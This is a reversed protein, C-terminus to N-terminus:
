NMLQSVADSKVTVGLGQGKLVPGRGGLSVNLNEVTLDRKLLFFNNSGECNEFPNNVAALMRGAASLIGSEGVQAGM